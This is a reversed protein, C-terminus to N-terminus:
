GSALEESRRMLRIAEDILQAAHQEVKEGVAIALCNLAERHLRAARDRARDTKTPHTVAAYHPSFCSTGAAGETRRM